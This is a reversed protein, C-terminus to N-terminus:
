EAAPLAELDTQYTMNLYAVGHKAGRVGRLTYARNQILPYTDAFSRSRSAPPTAAAKMRAALVEDDGFIAPITKAPDFQRWNNTKYKVLMRGHEALPNVKDTVLRRLIPDLLDNGDIFGVAHSEKLSLVVATLEDDFSAVVHEAEQEMAAVVREMIGEVVGALPVAHPVDNLIGEATQTARLQIVRWGDRHLLTVIKQAAGKVIDGPHDARDALRLIAGLPTQAADKDSHFYTVNPKERLEEGLTGETILRARESTSSLTSTLVAYKNAVAAQRPAPNAAREKRRVAAEARQLQREEFAPQALITAPLISVRSPLWENFIDPQATTVYYTPHVEGDEVREAARDCDRLDRLVVSVEVPTYGDLTYIVAREESNITPATDAVNYLPARYGGRYATIVREIRPYREATVFVPVHGPRPIEEGHWTSLKDWLFSPLSQQYSIVENRPKRELERASQAEVTNLWKKAIEQVVRRNRATDTINDRSSSLKVDGNPIRLVVRQGTGHALSTIIGGDLANPINYRVGHIEATLGPFPSKETSHMWWGYKGVATFQEPNHINIPVHKSDVLVTGLGTVAFMHESARRMADVDSVPIIITAGNAEDTALPEGIFDFSPLNDEDRSVSLVNKIGDKVAILTFQPSIALASKSGLGFGGTEANSDRKDSAGIKSYVHEIDSESIGVGFDQIVLQPNLSSPLTVEVPRSQRARIHSDRANSVYERLVALNADTYLSGSIAEIVFPLSDADMSMKISSRVPVSNKLVVGKSTTVIM